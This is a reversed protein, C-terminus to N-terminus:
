AALFHFYLDRLLDIAEGEEAFRNQTQTLEESDSVRGRELAEAIQQALEACIPAFIPGADSAMAAIGSVVDPDIKSAVFAALPLPDCWALIMELASLALNGREPPPLATCEPLESLLECFSAVVNYRLCDFILRQGGFAAPKLSCSFDSLRAVIRFVRAPVRGSIECATPQAADLLPNWFAEEANMLIFTKVHPESVIREIFGLFRLFTSPSTAPDLQSAVAGISEVLWIPTSLLPYLVRSGLRYRLATKAVVVFFRACIEATYETPLKLPTLGWAAIDQINVAFYGTKTSRHPVDWKENELGAALLLVRGPTPDVSLLFALCDRVRRVCALALDDFAACLVFAVPSRVSGRPFLPSAVIADAVAAAAAFWHPHVAHSRSDSGFAIVAEAIKACAVLTEIDLSAVANPAIADWVRNLIRGLRQAFVDVANELALTGRCFVALELLDSPVEPFAAFPAVSDVAICRALDRPPPSPGGRVVAACAAPCLSALAPLDVGTVGPATFLTLRVLQLVADLRAYQPHWRVEHLPVAIVKVTAVAQLCHVIAPDAFCLPAKALFRTLARVLETAAYGLDHDDARPLLLAASVLSRCVDTTLAPPLREIEPVRIGVLILLLEPLTRDPRHVWSAFEEAAYIFQLLARTSPCFKQTM